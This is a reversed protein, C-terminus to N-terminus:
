SQSKKVVKKLWFKSLFVILFYESANSNSWLSILYEARFGKCKWNYLQIDYKMNQKSHLRIALTKNNGVSDVAFRQEMM